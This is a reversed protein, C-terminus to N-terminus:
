RNAESSLHLINQLLGQYHEQGYAVELSAKVYGIPLSLHLSDPLKVWDKESCILRECGKEEAEIALQMLQKRTPSIHDPVTLTAAVEIGLSQATEFFSSPHGLGCFAAMRKGELSEKIEGTRDYIAHARMCTGIVPADTKKEVEKKIKEYHTEDKVHNLFIVDAKALRKPSDRLYGRPLYFGKGYLDEAHLMVIELDRHLGRYQMGDDLLIVEAEHYAARQANLCRDKGVFVTSRPLQKWLLYAEDGCVKPSIRANEVLHLSGGVKEVESRYGRLLVAVQKSIALDHGLKQILATKGTGGAVINGISIVPVSVRTKKFLRCDFAFHRLQVGTQFLASLMRLIGKTIPAKKRGEILDTIYTEILTAM